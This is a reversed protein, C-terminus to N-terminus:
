GGGSPAATASPCAHKSRRSRRSRRAPPRRSAGAPPPPPATSSWVLDSATPAAATTWPSLAGSAFTGNVILNTDLTPTITPTRTPTATATRTPTATNTRTATNTPTSTPVIIRVPQWSPSVINRLNTSIIHVSSSNVTGLGLQYTSGLYFSFTFADGQPSWIPDQAIADPYKSIVGTGDRNSIYLRHTLTDVSFVFSTDNPSTSIRSLNFGGTFLKRQNTGDRNMIYADYYPETGDLPEYERTTRFIIELGNPTWTPFQDLSLTNNTVNVVDSGDPNMLFIDDVPSGQSATFAIKTGDPSWAPAYGFFDPTLNVINTGDANMRFIQEFGQAYSTFVIQTGDPSWDPSVDHYNNFTLQQLNTGNPNIVYIEFDGDQDSSFAILGNVIMTQTQGIQVQVFVAILLLCVPIIKRSWNIKTNHTLM